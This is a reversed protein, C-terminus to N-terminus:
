SKIDAFSILKNTTLFPNQKMIPFGNDRRFYGRVMLLALLNFYNYNIVVLVVFGSM